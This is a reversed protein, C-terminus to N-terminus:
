RIIIYFEERNHKAWLAKEPKNKEGKPLTIKRYSVGAMEPEKYCIQNENALVYELFHKRAEDLLHPQPVYIEIQPHILDPDDPKSMKKTLLVRYASPTSGPLDRHVQLLNRGGFLKTALPLTTAYMGTDIMEYIYSASIKKTGNYYTPIGWFEKEINEFQQPIM